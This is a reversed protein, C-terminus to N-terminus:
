ESIVEVKWVRKSYLNEYIQFKVRSGADLNRWPKTATQAAKAVITSYHVYYSEDDDGVVIGEGSSEDFWHVYGKQWSAINRDNREKQDNKSM